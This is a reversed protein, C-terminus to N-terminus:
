RKDWDDRSLVVLAALKRGALERNLGALRSGGLTEFRAGAADLRGALVDAQELQSGTPRGEYGNVAGYLGVLKERLLEEGGMRGASSTSVLSARFADLTDAYASLRRALRDGPKLGAARAKAQDRLDITADVLYALRQVMDYLRLATRDQLARDERSDTFRPDPTLTVQSEYAKDGVILKVRYTGEPVRPGLFAGPQAVLSTAPPVKPAKLRMPWQVRNIGRRREGPYTARLTDASDYVQVKLDGFLPRRKLYYVIAAAEDPNQGVYEDDGTFNQVSAPIVMVSPKSPLMAVDSDLVAQTLHRLPTIDDLIWVGRGHTAVILDQERPHIQLDRVAVDPFKNAMRAWHRGGDVTIFLGLETGLFLLDPNV